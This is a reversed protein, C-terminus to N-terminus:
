NITISVVRFGNFLGEATQQAGYASSQDVDITLRNLTNICELTVRYSQIM